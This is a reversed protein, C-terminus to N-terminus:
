YKKKKYLYSPAHKKFVSHGNDYEFSSRHHENEYDHQFGHDDEEQHHFDHLDVLKEKEKEHFYHHHEPVKILKPKEKEHIYHHHEPVKIIKTHYITKVKTPIHIRHHVHHGPHSLSQDLTALTIM